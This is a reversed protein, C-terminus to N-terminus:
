KAKAAELAKLIQKNKLGKAISLASQGDKNIFGVNAKNKLLSEVQESNEEKVACMLPTFDAADPKNVDAGNEILLKIMEGTKAFFIPTQENTGYDAAYNIDAKYSVLLKAEELYDRSVALALLSEKNPDAKYKLLLRLADIMRRELIPLTPPKLCRERDGCGVYDTEFNPDAGAKLLMEASKLDFSLANFLLSNNNKDRVNLNPKSELLKGLKSYDKEKIANEIAQIDGSDQEKTEDSEKVSVDTSNVSCALTFLLLALTLISKTRYLM